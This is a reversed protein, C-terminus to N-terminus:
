LKAYYNEVTEIMHECDPIPDSLANGYQRNKLKCGGLCLYWSDCLGCSKAKLNQGFMDDRKNYYEEISEFYFEQKGSLHCPYIHGQFDISIEEIGIGCHIKHKHPYVSKLCLENETLIYFRQNEAKIRNNKWSNIFNNKLYFKELMKDYESSQFVGSDDIFIGNVGHESMDQQLLSCEELNDPHLTFHIFFSMDKSNCLKCKATIKKLDREKEYSSIQLVIGDVCKKLQNLIDEVLCKENCFLFLKVFSQNGIYELIKLAEDDPYRDDLKIFFRVYKEHEHKEILDIMYRIQNFTLVPNALDLYVRNLSQQRYEIEEQEGVKQIVGKQKMNEIFQVTYNEILNEQIDYKEKVIQIIDKNSHKGDMLSLITYATENLSLISFEVKSILVFRNKYKKIMFYKLNFLYCNDDVM